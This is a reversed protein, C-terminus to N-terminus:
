IRVVQRGFFRSRDFFIAPTIFKLPRHRFCSLAVAVNVSIWRAGAPLDVHRYSPSSRDSRRVAPNASPQLPSTRERHSHIDASESALACRLSGKDAGGPRCGRHRYERSRPPRSRRRGSGARCSRRRAAGGADVALAHRGESLDEAGVLAAVHQREDAIRKAPFRLARWSTTVRLSGRM